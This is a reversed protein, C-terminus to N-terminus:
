QLMKMVSKIIDSQTILGSIKNEKTTIIICGFGGDVMHRIAEMLDDDGKLTLPDKTMWYKLIYRDLSSGKYRVSGDAEETRAANIRYLDSLTIVGALTNDLRVIPLHKIRSERLTQEVESLEQKENLVIPPYSMFMKIQLD